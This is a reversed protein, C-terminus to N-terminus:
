KQSNETASLLIKQRKSYKEIRKIDVIGTGEDLLKLTDFIPPEICIWKDLFKDIRHRNLDVFGEIMVMSWM